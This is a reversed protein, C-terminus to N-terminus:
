IAVNSSRAEMRFRGSLWMEDQEIFAHAYMVTHLFLSGTM